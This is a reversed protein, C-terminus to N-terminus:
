ASSTKPIGTSRWHRLRSSPVTSGIGIVLPSGNRAVILQNPHDTCMICLGWSGDCWTLTQEVAKKLNMDGNKKYYKGMLKAIVKTDTQSIFVHGCGQLEKCLQSCNNITGNHVLAIKTRLRNM